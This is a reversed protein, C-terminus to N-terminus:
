TNIRPFQQEFSDIQPFVAVLHMREILQHWLFLFIISIRFQFFRCCISRTIHKGLFIDIRFVLRRRNAEGEEEESPFARALEARRESRRRNAEGEEEESPIARALESKWENTRRNVEDEEEESPIARALEARQENTRRNVKEM